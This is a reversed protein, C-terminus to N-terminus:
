KYQSDQSKMDTGNSKGNAKRKGSPQLWRRAIHYSSALEPNKVGLLDILPDLENNLILIIEKLANEKELRANIAETHGERPMDLLGHFELLKLLFQDVTETDLGVALLDTKNREVAESIEVLKEYFTSFKVSSIDKYVMLIKDIESAAKGEAFLLLFASKILKSLQFLEARLQRKHKTKDKTSTVLASKHEEAHHLLLNIRSMVGEVKVNGQLVSAFGMLVVIVDHVMTMKSNFLKNM